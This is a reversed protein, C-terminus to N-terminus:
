HRQARPALLPDVLDSTGGVMSRLSELAWDQIAWPQSEYRARLGSLHQHTDPSPIM